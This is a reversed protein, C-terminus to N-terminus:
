WWRRRWPGNNLDLPRGDTAAGALLDEIRGAITRGQVNALGYDAVLAHFDGLYEPYGTQELTYHFKGLVHEYRATCVNIEVDVIDSVIDPTMFKGCYVQERHVKLTRCFVEDILYRRKGDKYYQRRLHQPLVNFRLSVSRSDHDISVEHLREAYAHYIESERKVHKHEDMIKRHGASTRTHDDALEDAFRLIAALKRVAKDDPMLGITDKSDGISRGGHAAAIDSIKRKEFIDRGILAEELDFLENRARREHKKRGYVNGVDHFHAAVALLYAEYPSICFRGHNYALEGIRRIVTSIHEPGHDTLCIGDAVAAGQDTRPHVEDVMHVDLLRFRELLDPRGESDGDRAIHKVLPADRNYFAM